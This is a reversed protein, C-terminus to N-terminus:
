ARKGKEFRERSHCYCSPEKCSHLQHPVTRELFCRAGCPAYAECRGPTQPHPTRPSLSASVPFDPGLTRRRPM